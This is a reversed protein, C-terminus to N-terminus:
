LGRNSRNGSAQLVEYVTWYEQANLGDLPHGVKIPQGTVLIPQGTVLATALGFLAVGRVHINV